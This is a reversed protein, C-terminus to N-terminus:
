KSREQRKTALALRETNMREFVNVVTRLEGAPLARLVALVNMPFGAELAILDRLHRTADKHQQETLTDVWEADHDNM